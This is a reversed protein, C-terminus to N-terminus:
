LSGSDPWYKWHTNPEMTPKYQSPDGTVIVKAIQQWTEYSGPRNNEWERQNVNLHSQLSQKLTAAFSEYDAFPEADAGKLTYYNDRNHEYTYRIDDDSMEIVPLEIFDKHYWQDLVLIKNLDTPLSKYLEENTARFLDRYKTVLLRGVEEIAIEGPEFEKLEIGANLYEQKNHSLPVKRGRVIWYDANPKLSESEVTENFINWDIPMLTYYNTDQGNYYELNIM